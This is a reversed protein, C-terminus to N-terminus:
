NEITEKNERKKRLGLYGKLLIQLRRKAEKWSKINYLHHLFSIYESIKKIYM